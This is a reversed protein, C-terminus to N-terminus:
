RMPRQRTESERRWRNATRWDAAMIVVLGVTGVVGLTQNRLGRPVLFELLVMAIGLLFFHRGSLANVEYWIKDDALTAPVRFGYLRNRPIWGLILPISVVILVPGLAEMPGTYANAKALVHRPRFCDRDGCHFGDAAVHSSRSEGDRYTVEVRRAGVRVEEFMQDDIRGPDGSLSKVFFVAKLRSFPVLLRENAPCNVRPSVHLHGRDPSFANAYGRLLHGDVCRVVLRQWGAPLERHQM